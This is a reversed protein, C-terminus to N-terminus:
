SNNIHYYDGIYNKLNGNMETRLLSVQMPISGGPSASNLGGVHLIVLMSGRMFCDVGERSFVVNSDIENSFSKKSELVAVKLSLFLYMQIQVLLISSVGHGLM